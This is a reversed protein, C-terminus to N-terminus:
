RKAAANCRALADADLTAGDPGYSTFAGVRRALERCGPVTNTAAAPTAATCVDGDCNFVASGAIPRVKKAVPAQLKAVVPGTDAPAAAAGTAIALAFGAAIPLASLPTKL